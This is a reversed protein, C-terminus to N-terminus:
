EDFAHSVVRGHSLFVRLAKYRNSGPTPCVQVTGGGGEAEACQLGLRREIHGRAIDWAMGKRVWIGAERRYPDVSVSQRAQDARFATNTLLELTNRISNREEEELIDRFGSDDAM